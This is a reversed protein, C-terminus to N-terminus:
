PDHQSGQAPCGMGQSWHVGDDVHVDLHGRSVSPPRDLSLIEPCVDRVDRPALHHSGRVLSWLGIEMTAAWMDTLSVSNPDEDPARARAQQVSSSLLSSILRGLMGSAEDKVSDQTVVEIRRPPGQHLRIDEAGGRGAVRQHIQLPRTTRM